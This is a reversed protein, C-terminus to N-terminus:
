RAVISLPDIGNGSVTRGHLVELAALEVDEVRVIDTYFDRIDRMLKGFRERKVWYLKDMHEYLHKWVANIFEDDSTYKDAMGSESLMQRVYVPFLGIQNLFYDVDRSVGLYDPVNVIGANENRVLLGSVPRYPDPIAMFTEEALVAAKSLKATDLPAAATTINNEDFIQSLAEVVSLGARNGFGGVGGEIMQFGNCISSLSNATGLGRDNHSHLYFTMDPNDHVLNAALFETTQPLLTGVSDNIRVLTIGLQRCRDIEHILFRYRDDDIEISFANLISSRFRGVGIDALKEVVREFLQNEEDIEIMGVSVYIRSLYERPLTKLAEYLPEWTKLTLNFSFDTDEPIRGLLYQDDLIRHVFSPETLGSGVDIDRIGGEALAEILRLKRADDAGFLAREGGERM